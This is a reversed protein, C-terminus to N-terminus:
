NSAKKRAKWFKTLAEEIAEAKAAGVGQIDTLEKGGATWDAIHGITSLHRDALLVALTPKIDLKAVPVGRWSDDEVKMAANVPGSIDVVVGEATETVTCGMEKAKDFDISGTADDDGEEGDEDAEEGQSPEKLQVSFPKDGTLALARLRARSFRKIADERDVADLVKGVLVGIGSDGAVAVSYAGNPDIFLDLSARGEPADGSNLAMALRWLCDANLKLVIRGDVDPVAGAVPFSKEEGPAQVFRGGDRDLWISEPGFLTLSPGPGCRLLRGESSKPKAIDAPLTKQSGGEGDRIDIEVIAGMFGNCAIALGQGGRDNRVLHVSRTSGGAVGGISTTICVATEGTGLEIESISESM